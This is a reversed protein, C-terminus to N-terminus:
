FNKFGRAELRQRLKEKTRKIISSVSNQPMKLISAIEEHTKDYLYNLKLVIRERPPLFDLSEEMIHSLGKRELCEEAACDSSPTKEPLFEKRSFGHKKGRFFNHACNAAVMALWGSIKERNRIQRLTDKEWLLCFVEQFIDELDQRNYHCGAHSLRTKIAWYVLRSFREVLRDWALREGNICRAVLAQDSLEQM